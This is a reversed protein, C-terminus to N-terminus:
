KSLIVSNSKQPVIRYTLTAIKGSLPYDANSDGRSVFVEVKATGVALCNTYYATIVGDASKCYYRYNKNSESYNHLDNYFKDPSDKAKDKADVVYTRGGVTVTLGPTLLSGTYTVENESLVAGARGAKAQYVDFPLWNTPGEFKFSGNGEKATVINIRNDSVGNNIVEADYDKGPKLKSSSYVHGAEDAQYLTYVPKVAGNSSVIDSVVGIVDGSVFGGSISSVNQPISTVEKANIRFSLVTSGTYGAGAAAKIKVMATGQKKNSGWSTVIFRDWNYSNTKNDLVFINNDYIRKAREAYSYPRGNNNYFHTYNTYSKDVKGATGNDFNESVTIKGTTGNINVDADAISMKVNGAAMAASLDLPTIKYKLKVWYDPRYYKGLGRIWLTYTGPNMASRNNFGVHKGSTNNIYYNDQEVHVDAASVRSPDTFSVGQIQYQGNYRASNWSLKFDGAKIKLGKITVTISKDGYGLDKQCDTKAEIKIVYKGANKNDITKNGGEFSMDYADPSVAKKTKRDYVTIGFDDASVSSKWDVSKKKVTFRNDAFYKSGYAYVSFEPSICGCYNGHGTIKIRYTGPTKVDKASGADTWTKYTPDFVQLTETYDKPTKSSGKKLTFTKYYDKYKYQYKTKNLVKCSYRIGGKKGIFYYDSIGSTETLAWHSNLAIYVNRSDYYNKINEPYIDFYVTAKLTKYNGRGTVIVQPWRDPDDYIKRATGDGSVSNDFYVSANTNNKYKVAYDTGEQLQYGTNQNTINLDLVNNNTKDNTKTDVLFPYGDYIVPAISAINVSASGTGTESANAIVIAFVCVDSGTVSYTGDPDINTLPLSYSGDSKVENIKWGSVHASATNASLVDNFDKLVGNGNPDVTYSAAASECASVKRIEKGTKRGNKISSSYYQLVYTCYYGGTVKYSIRSYPYVEAEKSVIQYNAAFDGSITGNIYVSYEKPVNIVIDQPDQITADGTLVKGPTNLANLEGSLKPSKNKNFGGYVKGDISNNDNVPEAYVISGSVTTNVAAGRHSAPSALNESVKLQVARKAVKLALLESSVSKAGNKYVAQAYVTSDASVESLGVADYAEASAKLRGNEVQDAAYYNIAANDTIDNGSYTVRVAYKGNGGYALGYKETATISTTDTIDIAYVVTIGLIAASSYFCGSKRNVAYVNYSVGAKMVGTGDIPVIKETASHWLKENEATYRPPDDKSTKDFLVYAYDKKIYRSKYTENFSIGDASVTYDNASCTVLPDIAQELLDFSYWSDGASYFGIGAGDHLDTRSIHCNTYLSGNYDCSDEISVHSDNNDIYEPCDSFSEMLYIEGNYLDNSVTTYQTQEIQSLATGAFKHGAAKDSIGYYSDGSVAVINGGNGSVIAASGIHLGSVTKSFLATGGNITLNGADQLEMFKMTIGTEANISLSLPTVGNISVTGAGNLSVTCAAQDYSMTVGDSSIFTLGQETSDSSLEAAGGANEQQEAAATQEPTATEQAAEETVAAMQTSVAAASEASGASVTEASVTEAAFVSTNMTFVMAVALILCLERKWNRKM